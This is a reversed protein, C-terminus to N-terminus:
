SALRRPIHYVAFYLPLASNFTMRDISDTFKQDFDPDNDGKPYISKFAEKAQDVSAIEFYSINSSPVENSIDFEIYSALMLGGYENEGPIHDYDWDTILFKRVSEILQLTDM